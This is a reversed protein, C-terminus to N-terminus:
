PSVQQTVCPLPDMVMAPAPPPSLRDGGVHWCQCSFLLSAPGDFAQRESRCLLVGPPPRGIHRICRVVSLSGLCPLGRLAQVSLTTSFSQGFLGELRWSCSAQLFIRIPGYSRCRLCDTDRCVQCWWPGRLGLAAGAEREARVAASSGCAFFLDQGEACLTAKTTDSEKCGQLSHGALSRQRKWALISSPIPWYQNGYGELAGTNGAARAALEGSFRTSGSGRRGM